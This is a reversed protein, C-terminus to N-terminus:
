YSSGSLCFTPYVCIKKNIYVMYNENCLDALKSFDHFQILIYMTM